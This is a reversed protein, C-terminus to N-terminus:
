QDGTLGREAGGAVLDLVVQAAKEVAAAVPPSLGIGYDTSAPECGVVLVRGTDAGLLDLVSFVIDPQM